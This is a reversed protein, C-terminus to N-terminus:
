DAATVQFRRKNALLHSDAEEEIIQADAVASSGSGALLSENIERQNDEEKNIFLKGSGYPEGKADRKKKLIESLPKPGEFSLHGESQQHDEVNKRKGLSQQGRSDVNKVVKLEGLSKPRTFDVNDDMIERKTYPGRFNRGEHQHDEQVRGKIRDRLRGQPFIQPLVM